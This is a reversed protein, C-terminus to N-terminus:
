KSAFCRPNEICYWNIGSCRGECGHFPEAPECPGINGLRIKRPRNEFEITGDPWRPIPGERESARVVQVGELAIDYVWERPGLTASPVWKKIIPLTITRGLLNVSRAVRTSEVVRMTDGIIMTLHGAQWGAHPLQKPYSAAFGLGAGVVITTGFPWSVYEHVTFALAYALGFRFAILAIMRHILWWRTTDRWTHPFRPHHKPQRRCPRSGLLGSIRPLIVFWDVLSSLYLGAAAVVVLLPTAKALGVSLPQVGFGSMLAGATIGVALVTLLDGDVVRDLRERHAPVDVRAVLVDSRYRSRLFLAAVGCAASAVLGILPSAFLSEALLTLALAFAQGRVHPEPSL